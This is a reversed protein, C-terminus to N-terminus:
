GKLKPLKSDKGTWFLQGNPLLCVSQLHKSREIKKTTRKMVRMFPKFYDSEFDPYAEALEHAEVLLIGTLFNLDTGQRYPIRLDELNKIAKRSDILGERKGELRPTGTLGSDELCQESMIWQSAFWLSAPSDFERIAPNASRPHVGVALTFQAAVFEAIPQYHKMDTDIALDALAEGLLLHRLWLSLAKYRFKAGQFIQKENSTTLLIPPHEPLKALQYVYNALMFDVAM